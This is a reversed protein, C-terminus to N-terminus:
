ISAHASDDRRQIIELGLEIQVRNLVRDQDLRTQQFPLTWPKASRM